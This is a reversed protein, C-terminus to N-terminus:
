PSSGPADSGLIALAGSNGTTNLTLQALLMNSSSVDPPWKPIGASKSRSMSRRSRSSSPPAMATKPSTRLLGLLAFLTRSSPKRSATQGSSTGLKTLRLGLGRMPSMSRWPLAYRADLQAGMIEQDVANMLIQLDQRVREDKEVALKQQLQARAKQMAAVQREVINPGLDAALGDYQALGTDSANEPSFQAQAALVIAANRNSAEVWASSASATAPVAAMAPMALATALAAVLVTKCLQPTVSM